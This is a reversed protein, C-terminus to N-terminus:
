QCCDSSTGIKDSQQAIRHTHTTHISLLLSSLKICIKETVQKMHCFTESVKGHCCRKKKSIARYYQTTVGRTVTVGHAVTVGFAVTVGRAVTVGLTVTVGRAVTVGLTVTVGHTMTVGRTVTVGCAVTVGCTM